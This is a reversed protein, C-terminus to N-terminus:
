LMEVSLKTSYSTVNDLAPLMNYMLTLTLDSASTHVITSGIDAERLYNIVRYAPYRYGM